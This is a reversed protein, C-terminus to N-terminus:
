GGGSDGNSTYRQEPESERALIEPNPTEIGRSSRLGSERALVFVLVIM